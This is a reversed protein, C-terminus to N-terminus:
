SFSLNLAEHVGGPFVAPPMAIGRHDQHGVTVAKTGSFENVEASILDLKGRSRQMDAPDLPACRAGMRDEPVFEGGQPPELALLLGPRGEHERRLAARWEAIGAKGPHELPRSPHGLQWKLRVRMHQSMSATESQRVSPMIRPRQLGVESM